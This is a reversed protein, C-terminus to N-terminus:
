YVVKQTATVHIDRTNLEAFYIEPPIAAEGGFAGMREIAGRGLLRGTLAAPYGVTFTSCPMKWDPYWHLISELRWDQIQGDRTGRVDVRLVKHDDPESAEETTADRLARDVLELLVERPVVQQGKVPLPETGAAGLDCLFRLREEFRKPLALKFSCERIGKDKFAIPITYPESHITYYCTQAGVPAPFDIEEAGHFPPYEKWEGDEFPWASMLFENLITDLSYPPVLPAVATGFNAIGDRIRVWEVTDLRQEAYRAMVNVIGPASGSGCVATLGAAEFRDNLALQKKAWHFLGGTDTYHCGAKLCAEMVGENFYAMSCNVVVDCPELVAALADIDTVDLAVTSLKASAMAQRRANLGAENMDALLVQTVEDSEILDRVAAEAMKGAGGVVCINM